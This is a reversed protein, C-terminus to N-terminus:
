CGLPLINYFKRNNKPAFQKHEYLDTPQMSLRMYSSVNGESTRKNRSEPGLVLQPVELEPRRFSKRGGTLLQVVEQFHLYCWVMKSSKSLATQLDLANYMKLSSKVTATIFLLIIDNSGSQHM